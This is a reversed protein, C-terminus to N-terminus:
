SFDYVKSLVTGSKFVFLFDSKSLENLFISQITDKEVMQENRGTERAVTEIIEKWENFNDKYWNM